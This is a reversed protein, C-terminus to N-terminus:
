DTSDRLMAELRRRLEGLDKSKFAHKTRELVEITEILMQKYARQRPCRMFTCVDVPASVHGRAISEVVQQVNALLTKMDQAGEALFQEPTWNLGSAVSGPPGTEQLARELGNLAAVLSSLQAQAERVTALRNKKKVARSVVESMEPWDIPKLLYDVFSLRLAEIASQVSPYGTVVLIPLSPFRTRVERLFEFQANGPMRIDSILADYSNELLRSAEESDGACDCHYGEARLLTATSLRFTEEDDALLIRPREEIM